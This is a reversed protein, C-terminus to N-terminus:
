VFIQIFNISKGLSFESGRLDIVRSHKLTKVKEEIWQHNQSKVVDLLQTPVASNWCLIIRVADVRSLTDIRDM